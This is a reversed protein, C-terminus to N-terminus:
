YNPQGVSLVSATRYTSALTPNRDARAETRRGRAPPRIHRVADRKTSCRAYMGLAVLICQRIHVMSDAGASRQTLHTEISRSSLLWGLILRSDLETDRRLRRTFAPAPRSEQLPVETMAMRRRDATTAVVAVPVVLQQAELGAVEASATAVTRPVIAAIDTVAAAVVEASATAAAGPVIAAVAEAELVLVRRDVAVGMSELALVTGDVAGRM